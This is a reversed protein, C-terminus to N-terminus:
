MLWNHSSVLLQEYNFTSPFQLFFDNHDKTNPHTLFETYKINKSINAKKNKQDM